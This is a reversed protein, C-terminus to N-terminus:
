QVITYEVSDYKLEPTSIGQPYSDITLGVKQSKSKMADNFSVSVSVDKIDDNFKSMPVFCSIEVNDPFLLLSYGDPVNKVTVPVRITKKVLPEVPITVKVKSPVIKVGNIPMLAVELVTTEELNRRVIRRTFVRTVTDLDVTTSYLLVSTVNSTPRGVIIKGSKATVDANVILPVRKGKETTYNIHLSDISVTTIQAGSGFLSKLGANLDAATYRLLGSQAYDRFNLTLNPENFSARFLRTGKDRVTIHIKQPPDTIFTVSDPVGTVTLRVDLSDQVNDNMAMIVWFLTALIVFIFFTLLNHFRSSAKIGRWSEIIREIRKDM